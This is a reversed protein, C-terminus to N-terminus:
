LLQVVSLLVRATNASVVIALTALAVRGTRTAGLPTDFLGAVLLTLPVVWHKSYLLLEEGFITHFAWNFLFLALATWYLPRRGVDRRCAVFAATIVLALAIAIALPRRPLDQYSVTYPPEGGPREVRRAPLEPFVSRGFADPVDLVLRGAYHRLQAPVTNPVGSDRAQVARLIPAEHLQEFRPVYDGLGGQFPALVLAIAATTGVSAISLALTSTLATRPASGRAWRHAAVGIGFMAVNTATVSTLFTGCAILLAPRSRVSRQEADLCFFLWAMGLGTLAFSEPITGFLFTSFAFAHLAGVLAAGQQRPQLVRYILVAELGAAIPCVALALDRSVDAARVGVAAIPRLLTSVGAILPHLVNAINPHVLSRPGWSTGTGRGELFGRLYWPADANFLTDVHAFAGHRDLIRAVIWCLAAASVFLTTAV